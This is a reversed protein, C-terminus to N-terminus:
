AAVDHEEQRSATTPQLPRGVTVSRSPPAPRPHVALGKRWLRLAEWHIAAIIKLTMLPYALLVRLLAGDTLARRTAELTAVIMPGQDDLGTVALDIRDDPPMLRFTYHMDNDLFPSVHLAKQSHQLIPTETSEVPILYCHRDGFTNTVEYLVAALAGSRRHCFYVSIPNFAYGLIRPLTLLRIPGGDPVIGAARLHGEVQRKLPTDSGDGHDRANFSFLGFRGLRLLWSSRALAEIEDLDLLLYFVDYSLHHRRPRLRQHAVTGAYLASRLAKM